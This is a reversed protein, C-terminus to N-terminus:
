QEFTLAGEYSAARAPNAGRETVNERALAGVHSEVVVGSVIEGAFSDRLDLTV